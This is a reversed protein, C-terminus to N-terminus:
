DTCRFAKQLLLLTISDRRLGHFLNENLFESHFRVLFFSLLVFVSTTFIKTHVSQLPQLSVLTYGTAPATCAPYQDSAVLEGSIWWLETQNPEAQCPVVRLMPKYFGRGRTQTYLKVSISHRNSKCITKFTTVIVVSPISFFPCISTQLLKM